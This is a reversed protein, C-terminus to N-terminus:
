TLGMDIIPRQWFDLLGGATPGAPYDVVLAGKSLNYFSIIYPTTLNATVIGRKEKLSVFVAFEGVETTEYVEAQDLLWAYFSVLPTSWLYAQCARQFDMADFLRQSSEDTIFTHELEITGYPSSIVENGHLKAYKLETM